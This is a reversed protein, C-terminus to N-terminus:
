LDTIRNGFYWHGYKCFSGKEGSFFHCLEFSILNPQVPIHPNFFGSLQNTWSFGQLAVEIRGRQIAIGILDPSGCQLHHILKFSCPVDGVKPMSDIRINVRFHDFYKDLGHFFVSLFEFQSLFPGFAGKKNKTFLIM